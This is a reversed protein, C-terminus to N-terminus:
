KIYLVWLCIEDGTLAERRQRPKGNSLPMESPCYSAQPQESQASGAGLEHRIGRRTKWCGDPVRGSHLITLPFFCGGWGSFFLDFDFLDQNVTGILVSELTNEYFAVSFVLCHDDTCMSIM